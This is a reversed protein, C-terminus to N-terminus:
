AGVPCWRTPGFAWRMVSGSALATVVTVVEVLPFGMATRAHTRTYAHTHAHMHARQRDDYNTAGAQACLEGKLVGM